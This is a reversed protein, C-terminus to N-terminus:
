IVYCSKSVWLLDNTKLINKINICNLCKWSLRFVTTVKAGPQLTKKTLHTWNRNVNISYFLIWKQSLGEWFMIKLLWKFLTNNTFLSFYQWIQVHGTHNYKVKSTQALKELSVSLHWDYSDNFYKLIKLGIFFSTLNSIHQM